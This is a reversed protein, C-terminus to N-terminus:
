ATEMWVHVWLVNMLIQFAVIMLFWTNFAFVLLVGWVTGPGSRAVRFFILPLPSMNQKVLPVIWDLNWSIPQLLFLTSQQM